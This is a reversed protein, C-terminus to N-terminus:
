FGSCGYASMSAKATQRAQVCVQALSAKADPTAASSKWAARTQTLSSALSDRAEKPVKENVCKQYLDLYDDCEKIGVKDAAATDAARAGACSLVSAGLLLITLYIKM